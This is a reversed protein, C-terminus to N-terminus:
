EHRVGLTIEMRQGCWDLFEPDQCLAPDTTGINLLSTGNQEQAAAVCWDLVLQWKEPLIQRAGGDIREKVFM